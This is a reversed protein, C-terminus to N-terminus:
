STSTALVGPLCMLGVAVCGCQLMYAEHCCVWVMVCSGWLLVGVSCCMLGM